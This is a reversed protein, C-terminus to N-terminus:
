RKGRLLRLSGLFAIGVASALFLAILIAGLSIGHDAQSFPSDVAEPAVAPEEEVPVIEQPPPATQEPPQPQPATASTKEEKAVATTNVNSSVNSQVTATKVLPYRDTNNGSIVYPTDGIGDGNADTGGYDSWYNGGSPYGNDWANANSDVWAQKKNNFTNHFFKNGSSLFVFAGNNTSASITNNRVTNDSAMYFAVGAQCGYFDNGVILNNSSSQVRIGNDCNTISNGQITSGSTYALLVGQGTFSLQLNQVTINVSNVLYVAGADRPVIQNAKNIWYYVPKGNVTNSTDVDNTFGPIDYSIVHLNLESGTM